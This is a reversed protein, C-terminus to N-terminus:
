HKLSIKSSPALPASTIAENLEVVPIHYASLIKRIESRHHDVSAELRSALETDEKRVGLAMNYSFRLEPMDPDSPAIAVALTDGYHSAFYGGLPGWVIAMDVHGKAVADIVMGQPNQAANDGWMSFGVINKALGHRGLAVAPPANSGDNGIVHLGIKLDTLIPDDYSTISLHRSTKTVIVYSSRYYPQTALVRDFDAPVSMVVDCRHAGLTQRFFNQRQKYWTYTLPVGLDKAIIAAIKNEFGERRENSFPLNDPDACVRLPEGAHSAMPVLLAIAAAMAALTCALQGTSLHMSIATIATIASPVIVIV